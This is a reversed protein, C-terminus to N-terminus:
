IKQNTTHIEQIIALAAAKPNKAATVPRGVVLHNAGALIADKPTM